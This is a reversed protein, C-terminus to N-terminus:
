MTQFPKMFRHLTEKDELDLDIFCIGLLHSNDSPFVQMWEVKGMANLWDDDLRLQVRLKTERGVLGISADCRILMGGASLDLTWGGRYGPRQDQDCLRFRVPLTVPVRQLYRREPNSPPRLVTKQAM